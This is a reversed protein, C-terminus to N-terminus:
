HIYGYETLPDDHDRQNGWCEMYLNASHAHEDITKKNIKCCNKVLPVKLLHIGNATSSFKFSNSTRFTM